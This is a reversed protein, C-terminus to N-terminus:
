CVEYIASYRISIGTRALVMFLSKSRGARQHRVGEADQLRPVRAHLYCRHQFFNLHQWRKHETDYATTYSGSHTSFSSTESM